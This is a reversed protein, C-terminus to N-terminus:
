LAERLVARIEDKNFVKYGGDMILTAEVIDDLLAETVGLESLTLPLGLERMWGAM